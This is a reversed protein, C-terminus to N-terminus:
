NSLQASTLLHHGNLQRSLPQAHLLGSVGTHLAQHVAHQESDAGQQLVVLFCGCPLMVMEQLCGSKSRSTSVWLMAHLSKGYATNPCLMPAQIPKSIAWTIPLLQCLWLYLPTQLNLWQMSQVFKCHQEHM